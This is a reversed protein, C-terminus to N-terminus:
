FEFQPWLFPFVVQTDPFYANIHKITSDVDM